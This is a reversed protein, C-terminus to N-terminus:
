HGGIRGDIELGEGGAASARWIGTVWVPNFGAVEHFIEDECGEVGLVPPHFFLGALVAVCLAFEAEGRDGLRWIRKEQLEM